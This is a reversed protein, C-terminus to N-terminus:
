PDEQITLHFQDPLLQSLQDLQIAVSQEIATVVACAVDDGHGDIELLWRGHGSVVRVRIV